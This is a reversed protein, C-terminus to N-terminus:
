NGLSNDFLFFSVVKVLSFFQRQGLKRYPFDEESVGYKLKLKKTFLPFEWCKLTVMGLLLAVTFTSWLFNM